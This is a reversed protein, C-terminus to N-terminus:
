RDSLFFQRREDPTLERGIIAKARDILAQGAGPNPWVCIAGYLTGAYIYANDESFGHDLIQSPDGDGMAAGAPLCPGRRILEAGGESEWVAVRFPETVVGVIQSNDRSFKLEFACGSAPLMAIKRNAAVDWLSPGAEGSGCEGQEVIARRGDGSIVVRVPEMFTDGLRKGTSNPEPGFVWVSGDAGAGALWNKRVGGLAIFEPKLGATKIERMLGGHAANWIQVAEGSTGIVSKGDDSFKVDRDDLRPFARIERATVPDYLAMADDSRRVLLRSGDANVDAINLNHSQTLESLQKRGNESILWWLNGAAALDNRAPLASYPSSSPGKTGDTAPGISLVEEGSQKAILLQRGGPGIFVCDVPNRDISTRLEATSGNALDVITFTGATTSGFVYARGDISVSGIDVPSDPDAQSPRGLMAGTDARWLRWTGGCRSAQHKGFILPGAPSRPMTVHEAAGDDAHVMREDDDTTRWLRATGDRGVTVVRSGDKNIIAHDVRGTHGSMRALLRNGVEWVRISRDGSTALLRQSDASFALHGVAGEFDNRMREDLLLTREIEAGQSLVENAGRVFGSITETAQTFGNDKSWLMVTRDESGTAITSDDPSFASRLVTDQHGRLTVIRRKSRLDWLVPASDKSILLKDGANSFAAYVTGGGPFGLDSVTIRQHPAGNWLDVVQVENTQSGGSVAYRYDASFAYYDIFGKFLFVPPRGRYVGQELTWLRATLSNDVTIIRGSANDIRVDTVDKGATLAIRAEGSDLDVSYVNTGAVAWVHTSDKSFWVRNIPKSAVARRIMQRRAAIDWLAVSGDENGILLRTSDDNIVADHVKAAQAGNGAPFGIALIERHAAAARYLAAMAPPHYPRDWAAWDAPLAQLALLIGLTANGASTQQTSLDTLFRSQTLLAADRQTVARGRETQAVNRQMWAVVGLTAIVVLVSALIGFTAMLVRRRRVQERAVLDDFRCGLLTSLLKLKAIRRTAGTGVGKGSRFDAALPEVARTTQPDGTAQSHVEYLSPPFADAPEGEILCALIRESRGLQRFLTVEQNVWQSVPTRPSCVVVLFESQSLVEEIEASLNASAALEEEDRFIKGVREPIGREVLRKPTRYSEIAAHVWKALGRDPEVHRYSIFAKYRFEGNAPSM